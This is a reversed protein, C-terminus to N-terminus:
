ARQAPAPSHAISDSVIDLDFVEQDASSSSAKDRAGPYQYDMIIDPRVPSESREKRALPERTPRLQIRAQSRKMMVLIVLLIVVIVSLFVIAVIVLAASAAPLSGDVTM